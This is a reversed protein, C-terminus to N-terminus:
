DSLSLSHQFRPVKRYFSLLGQEFFYYRLSEELSKRPEQILDSLDSQVTGFCGSSMCQMLQSMRRRQRGPIGSRIMLAEFAELSPSEYRVEVGLLESLLDAITEFSYSTPGTLTLVKRYYDSATLVKRVATAVNCEAVPATIGKGAPVFLRRDRAILSGLEYAFLATPLNIRLITWDLDSAIVADRVRRIPDAPVLCDVSEPVLLVVRPIRQRELHQVFSLTLRDMPEFGAVQVLVVGEVRHTIHAFASCDRTDFPVVEVHQRNALELPPVGSPSVLRVRHDETLLGRAVASGVRTHAGIILYPM